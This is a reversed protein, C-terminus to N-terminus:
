SGEYISIVRCEFIGLPCSCRLRCEDSVSSVCPSSVCSVGGHIFGDRIFGDLIFGDHIFRNLFPQIALRPSLAGFDSDAEWTVLTGDEFGAAVYKDFIAISKADSKGEYELLTEYTRPNYVFVSKGAGCALLKSSVDTCNVSGSHALTAICPDKTQPKNMWELLRASEKDAKLAAFIVSKDPQQLALQSVSAEGEKELVDRYRGVFSSMETAPSLDVGDLDAVPLNLLEVYDKTSAIILKEKVRMRLLPLTGSYM